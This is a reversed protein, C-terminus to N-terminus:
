LGLDSLNALPTRNVNVCGAPEGSVEDSIVAGKRVIYRMTYYYGMNGDYCYLYQTKPDYRLSCERFGANGLFSIGNKWTFVLDGSEAMYRTENHAILEPIGDGTLDLLAVTVDAADVPYEFYSNYGASRLFKGYGAVWDDARAATGSNGGSVVTEVPQEAIDRGQAVKSAPSDDMETTYSMGTSDSGAYSDTSGPAGAGGTGQAAGFAEYFFDGLLNVLDGRIFGRQGNGLRVSYWTRNDSFTYPSVVTVIDGAHVKAVVRSGGSTTERVNTSNLRVSGHQLAHLTGYQYEQRTCPCEVYDANIWGTLGVYSDPSTAAAYIVYICAWNGNMQLLTFSDAQELHGYSVGGGPAQRVQVYNGSCRCWDSGIHLALHAAHMGSGGPESVFRAKEASAASGSLILLIALAAAIWARCGVHRGFFNNENM